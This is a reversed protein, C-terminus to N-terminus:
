VNKVFDKRFEPVKLLVQVVDIMKEYGDSNLKSVLDALLSDLKYVEYKESSDCGSSSVSSFSEADAGFSDDMKEDVIISVGEKFEVDFGLVAGLKALEDAKPSRENSEYRRISMTSVKSKQALEIQALGKEKRKQRLFEGINDM